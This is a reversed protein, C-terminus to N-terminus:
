KLAAVRELGEIRSVLFRESPGLGQAAQLTDVYTRLRRLDIRVHRVLDYLQDVTAPPLPEGRAGYLDFLFSRFLM